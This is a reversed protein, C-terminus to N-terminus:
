WGPGPHRRAPVTTAPGIFRERGAADREAVCVGRPLQTLVAVLTTRREREIAAEAWAGALVPLVAHGKRRVPWRVYAAVATLCGVCTVGLTM